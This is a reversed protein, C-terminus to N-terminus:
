FSLEPNLTGPETLVRFIAGPVSPKSKEAFNSKVFYFIRKIRLSLETLGPSKKSKRFRIVQSFMELRKM